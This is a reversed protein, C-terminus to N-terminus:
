RTYYNVWDRVTWYKVGIAESIQKYTLGEDRLQRAREVTADTYKAKGHWEGVRHGSDARM